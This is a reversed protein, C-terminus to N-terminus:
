ANIDKSFIHAFSSTRLQLPYHYCLRHSLDFRYLFSVPIM